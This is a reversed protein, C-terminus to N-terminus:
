DRYLVLSTEMVDRGLPTRTVESALAVGYWANRILPTTHDALLAGATVRSSSSSM